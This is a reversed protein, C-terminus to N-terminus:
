LLLGGAAAAAGIVAWVPLRRWLLLAFVAAALVLSRWDVVGAPVVVTAFAAFLIGVVAANAGCLAAQAQPARRMRQWFPWVGLVLLLGPLFVSVLALGAGAWGGPGVQSSAGLYAAFTFLPGPMAQAAAYGALFTEHDLWGPGVVGTELLPLVVHGGGFVLAGARYFCDAVAVAGGYGSALWPLAVLPVLAAALWVLGARRRGPLHSDAARAQTAANQMRLLIAGLAAGAAIVALQTGGAPLFDLAGAAGAALLRRPWDPCLTRGMQWVAQAVVAVAAVKLGHLWGTDLMGSALGKACLVMLVASPLTFGIWAAV